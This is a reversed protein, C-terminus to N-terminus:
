EAIPSPTAPRSTSRSTATANIVGSLDNIFTLHTDALDGIRGGGTITDSLNDVTRNSGDAIIQNKV